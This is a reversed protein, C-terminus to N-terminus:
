PTCSLQLTNAAILNFWNQLIQNERKEYKKTGPEFGEFSGWEKGIELIRYNEFDINICSPLGMLWNAFVAQYSGYRKLNAPFLYEKKFCDAVFSLKEDDTQPETTLDYGECNIAGIIYAHIVKKPLM